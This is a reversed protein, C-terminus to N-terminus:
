RGNARPELLKALKEQLQDEAASSWAYEPGARFGGEADFAAVPAATLPLVGLSRNGARLEFAVMQEVERVDLTGPVFPAPGDTVLLEQELLVPTQLGGTLQARVDLPCLGAMGVESSSVLFCPGIRAVEALEPMQRALRVDGKATQVVLRTESIRLSRLFQSKSIAKIQQTALVRDDVMWTAVYTGARKPLNAPCITALAQKGKLQSSSLRVPFRRGQTAGELRWDLHCDLDVLPVLSHPSSLVAGAVLGHCQSSVFTQCAVTLEGLQVALTAQQLRLKELFEARQVVPLTMESLRHHRWIVEANSTQSPPPFRFCLRYHDPAEERRLSDLPIPERGPIRLLFEEKRRAAIGPLRAVLCEVLVADANWPIPQNDIVLGGKEYSYHMAQARGGPRTLPWLDTMAWDHWRRMWPWM